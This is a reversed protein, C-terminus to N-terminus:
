APNYKTLFAELRKLWDINDEVKSFGHGEGKYTQFEYPKGASKLAAAYASSQKYPV